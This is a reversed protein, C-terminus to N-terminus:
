RGVWAPTGNGRYVVLNGDNQMLLISSSDYGTRTAWVARGDPVYMVLNGDPQMVLRAGPTGTRTAFLARGGPGYVVFNGDAQAIARYAGNPSTLMGTTSLVQGTRLLDHRSGGSSWMASGSRYLVLNGDDQLVLRVRVTSGTGTAWVPGGSANYIVLNGDPQAILRGGRAATGSAWVPRGGSAYEVLNGDSQFVLTYRGDPSVLAQGATLAARSPLATSRVVVTASTGTVGSVTVRFAGGAVPVGTGVPLATQLDGSWGTSPSPTGDLLLSTDPPAASRHLLVGAQLSLYNAAPSGLWADRGSPTRLELWYTSGGPDVLELARIGSRGSLPSLTYTGSAAGPAVQQVDASRLLGIRAAQAANLTGVQEWSFGMVDYYDAYSQTRCTGDEVAGDCQLASSHGLGFNHGLEHAIVSTLTDQVYLRGGFGLGTGVEALGYACGPANRPVYVLLHQGPARTWHAHAAAEDWLAYPDSCDVTGQFWDYQGTPSAQIEIAGDSQERWFDAVPGNVASVVDNLTRGDPATGAPAMMVVTATDTITTTAAVPPEAPAVVSADLVERAPDLHQTAAADDQVARGVTVEVTAGVPIHHLEHTLDDTPVRVADGDDTEIWTLLSDNAGAAAAGPDQHETWAQVVQGVVTDDSAHAVGPLATVPAAVLAAVVIARLRLTNM